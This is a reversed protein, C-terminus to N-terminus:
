VLGGWEDINGGNSYSELDDDTSFEYMTLVLADALDTSKGYKEDLSEKSELIMSGNTNFRYGPMLLDNVLDEMGPLKSDLYASQRLWMKTNHWLEMKLNAFQESDMSSESVTVSTVPHKLRKLNDYVGGGIGITDVFIMTPKYFNALKNVTGALDVTDLGQRTTVERICPGQRVVIGSANPGFRAPDVGIFIPFESYDIRSREATQSKDIDNQTIYSLSSESTPFEGYVRVRAVDSDEGYTELIRNIHIPDTRNAERSDITKKRWDKGIPTKFIKWFFKRNGIPNGILFLIGRQNAIGTDLVEFIEDSVGSAEDVLVLINEAHLGAVSTEAKPSSSLFEFFASDKYGKLYMRESNAEMLDRLECQEMRMKVEPILRLKLQAFKSALLYGRANKKCILFWIAILSVLTSKGIGHGSKIAIRQLLEESHEQIEKAETFQWHELTLEPFFDIVFDLFRNEYKERLLKLIKKNM